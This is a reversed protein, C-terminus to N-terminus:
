GKKPPLPLFKSTRKSYADWGKRRASGKETLPVGSVFLILTTIVLPGVIALWWYQTTAAIIFIGWWQVVEGFYNPHRSYKWLGETMLEGKSSSKASFRSLQFDGVAEFFFGALWVLVGILTLATPRVPGTLNVTIVPLSILVALVAQLVYVKFFMNPLVGGRKAAYDKQLNLYRKDQVKSREWRRYIHISLRMGWIVVLVLIITQVSVIEHTVQGAYAVIAISIFALGWAVDVLDFRKRDSAILFILSM